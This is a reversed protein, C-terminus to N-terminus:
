NKEAETRSAELFLKREINGTDTNIISDFRVKGFNRTYEMQLRKEMLSRYKEESLFGSLFKERDLAERFTLMIDGLNAFYRISEPLKKLAAGSDTLRDSDFTVFLNADKNEAINEIESPDPNILVNPKGNTNVQREYLGTDRGLIFADVLKKSAEKNDYSCFKKLFATDDYAKDKRIESMLADVDYVKPFPLDSIPFYTGRESLYDDLDYPFLVIKNKSVAYDFFVSSYDTILVDAANLFEYTEYEKPFAKIHDFMAIRISNKVVPHLKLYFVEDDKLQKDIESLMYTLILDNKETKGNAALGRFTPLYAYVRKNELGFDKRIEARSEDDFFAENRPYGAVVAQGEFLDNIMYDRMMVDMTYENPYLLMDAVVFNKQANGIDKFGEEMRRGLYKFPTGHWTNLYKQEDRKVWWPMFTNDNILYGATALLEFYKYSSFLVIKIDTMNHKKLVANIKNRRDPKASVYIEFDSYDPNGSMYKLMGFINGNVELGHQSEFLVVRKNVDLEDFYECYKYRAHEYENEVNEKLELSKDVMRKFKKAKQRLGLHLGM